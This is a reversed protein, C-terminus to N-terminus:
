DIEFFTEAYDGHRKTVMRGRPTILYFLLMLPAMLMAIMGYIDLMVPFYYLMLPFIWYLGIQYGLTNRVKSFSLGRYFFPSRCAVILAIYLMLTGWFFNPEWDLFRFLMPIHLPSRVFMAAQHILIPLYTFMVAMGTYIFCALRKSKLHKNFIVPFAVAFYTWAAINVDHSNM